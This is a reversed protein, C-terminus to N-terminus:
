ENPNVSYSLLVIDDLSDFAPHLYEPWRRYRGTNRLTIAILRDEGIDDQSIRWELSAEAGTAAAPLPPGSTGFPRPELLLSWEVNRGAPVAARCRFTVLDGVNLRLPKTSWIVDGRMVAGTGTHGLSDTVSEIVPYYESAPTMNSRYVMIQNRLLGLTGVFLDREFEVLARSHAVANRYSKAINLLAITQPENGFVPEFEPWNAEILDVLEPFELFDLLDASVNVGRRKRLDNRRRGSVRKMDPSGPLDSWGEGLRLRVVLRLSREIAVLAAEVDM